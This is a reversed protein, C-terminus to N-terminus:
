QKFLTVFAEVAVLQKICNPIEELDYLDYDSLLADKALKHAIMNADRKTHCVSWSIFSKLVKRTDEVILGGISWDEVLKQLKQVVQLSDGKLMLKLIGAENSFLMAVMLAYAEAAFPSLIMKRKARLTALVEGNCDRIIGGIGVLDRSVDIAADWNLKYKGESPKKWKECPTSGRTIGVYTKTQAKKFCRLDGETKQIISNPHRFAKGHVFDNRRTWLLRKIMGAEEMEPQFLRERMQSWVVNFCPDNTTTKQIHRSAQGWVDRAVGCSWLAHSLTEEQPHCIPCLNEERIKRRCLNSFTALAESCARLLFMRVGNPLKM